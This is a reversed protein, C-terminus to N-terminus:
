LVNLVANLSHWDLDQLSPSHGPKPHSPGRVKIKALDASFQQEETALRALEDAAVEAQLVDDDTKSRRALRAKKAEMQKEANSIEADLKKRRESVLTEMKLKLEALPRMVKDVQQRNHVISMTSLSERSMAVELYMAQLVGERGLGRTHLIEQWEKECDILDQRKMVVRTMVTSLEDLAEEAKKVESFHPLDAVSRSKKAGFISKRVIEWPRM